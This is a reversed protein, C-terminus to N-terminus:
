QSPPLNSRICVWLGLRSCLEPTVLDIDQPSQGMYPDLFVEETLTPNQVCLKWHSKEFEVWFLFFCCFSVVASNFTSVNKWSHPFARFIIKSGM